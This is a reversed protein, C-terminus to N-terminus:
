CQCCMCCITPGRSPYVKIESERLFANRGQVDLEDWRQRFTRGACGARDARACAQATGSPAARSECRRADGAARSTTDSLRAWSSRAALHCIQEVVKGDRRLLRPGSDAETEAMETGPSNSCRASYSTRWRSPRSGGPAASATACTRRSCHYYRYEYEKGSTPRRRPRATCRAGCTRLVRGPAAAHQQGPRAGREPWASRSASTSTALLDAAFGPLDGDGRNRVM